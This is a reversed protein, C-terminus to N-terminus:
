IVVFFINAVREGGKAVSDGTKSGVNWTESLIRFCKLFFNKSIKFIKSVFELQYKEFHRHNKDNEFM